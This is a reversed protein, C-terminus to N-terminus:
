IAQDDSKFALIRTSLLFHLNLSNFSKRASCCTCSSSTESPRMRAGAATASAALARALASFALLRRPLPLADGPAADDGNRFNM